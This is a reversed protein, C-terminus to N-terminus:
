PGKAKPSDLRTAPQKGATNLPVQHSDPPKLNEGRLKRRPHLGMVQKLGSQRGRREVM